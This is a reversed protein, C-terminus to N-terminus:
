IINKVSITKLTHSLLNKEKEISISFTVGQYKDELYSKVNSILTELLNCRKNFCKAIDDCLIKYDIIKDLDDDSFSFGYEVVYEVDIIFYQGEKKETEYVGHYGFLKLKNIIYKYKM